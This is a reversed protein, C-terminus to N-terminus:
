DIKMLTVVQERLLHKRLQAARGDPSADSVPNPIVETCRPDLNESYLAWLRREAFCKPIEGEINSSLGRDLQAVAARSLKRRFCKAANSPCEKIELDLLEAIRYRTSAAVLFADPM